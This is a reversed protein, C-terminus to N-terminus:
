TSYLTKIVAKTRWSAQDGIIIESGSRSGSGVWWSIESGSGPIYFNRIRVSGSGCCQNWTCSAWCKRTCLESPGPLALEGALLEALGSAGPVSLVDARKNRNCGILYTSSCRIQVPENSQVAVKMLRLHFTKMTHCLLSLSGLVRAALPYPYGHICLCCIWNTIDSELATMYICVHAKCLTSVKMKMTATIAKTNRIRNVYSDPEEPAAATLSAPPARSLGGWLDACGLAGVSVGSREVIFLVTKNLKV